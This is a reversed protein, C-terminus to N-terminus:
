YIMHDPDALLATLVAVWAVGPEDSRDLAGEWTSRLGDIYPDEDALAM